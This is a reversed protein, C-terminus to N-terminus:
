KDGGWFSGLFGKVGGKQFATQPEFIGAKAKIAKIRHRSWFYFIGAGGLLGSFLQLLLTFSREILGYYMTERTTFNGAAIYNIDLIKSGFVEIWYILFGTLVGFTAPRINKSLINDSNTDIKLRDTAGKQQTAELKNEEQLREHDSTGIKNIADGTKEIVNGAASITDSIPNLNM